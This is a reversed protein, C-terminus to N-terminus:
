LTERNLECSGRFTPDGVFMQPINMNNTQFPVAIDVRVTETDNTIVAPTVEITFDRVGVSALVFEAANRIKEPQAGPVIGVRAAEYAASETAHALMNARGM